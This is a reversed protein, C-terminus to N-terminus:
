LGKIKEISVIGKTINQLSGSTNNFMIKVDYGGSAVFSFSAQLTQNTNNPAAHQGYLDQVSKVTVDSGDRVLVEMWTSGATSRVGLQLVVSIHYVGSENLEITSTGLSGTGFASGGSWLVASLDFTANLGSTSLTASAPELILYSNVGGGTTQVGNILEYTVVGNDWHTIVNGSIYTGTFDAPVPISGGTGYPSFESGPLMITGNLINGINDALEALNSAYVDKAVLRSLFKEITEIRSIINRDVLLQDSPSTTCVTTTTGGGTGGDDSPLPM